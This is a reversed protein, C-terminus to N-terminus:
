GSLEDEINKEDQEIQKKSKIYIHIKGLNGANSEFLLPLDTKPYIYINSNLGAIKIIRTLQETDYEEEYIYEQNPDEDKIEGFIVNRSYVGGADCRFTITHLKSMIKTTNGINGMDKCMKQFENPSVIIKGGYGTPIDDIKLNQIMQIKICSINVRNNEKPIVTIELDNPKNEYITLIIIDKKKISKLMKHFHNLNVGIHLISEKFEFINFNNSMLDMKILIHRNNDVMCLSIGASTIEFCATRINNQLLEALIKITYGETTKARFLISM